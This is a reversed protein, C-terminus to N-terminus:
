NIHEPRKKPASNDRVLSTGSSGLFFGGWLAHRQRSLLPCPPRRRAGFARRHGEPPSKLSSLTHPIWTDNKPLGPRVLRLAWSRAAKEDDGGVRAYADALKTRMVPDSWDVKEARKADIGKPKVLPHRAKAECLAEAKAYARMASQRRDPDLGAFATLFVDSRVYARFREVDGSRALRQFATSISESLRQANADPYNICQGTGSRRQM